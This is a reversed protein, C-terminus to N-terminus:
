KERVCTPTGMGAFDKRFILVLFPSASGFDMWAHGM